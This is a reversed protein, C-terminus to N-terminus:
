IGLVRTNSSSCQRPTREKVCWEIAIFNFLTMMSHVTHKLTESYSVVLNYTKVIDSYSLNSEAFALQPELMM